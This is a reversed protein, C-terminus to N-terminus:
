RKQKAKAEITLQADTLFLGLSWLLGIAVGHADGSVACYASYGWWALHLYIIRNKKM